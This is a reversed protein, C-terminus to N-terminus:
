YNELVKSVVAVSKHSQAAIQEDTLGPAGLGNAYNDVSCLAGYELNMEQALNAENALGMGVLDAFNSMVKIEAKTELRPGTTQWYTGGNEFRVKAKWAADALNQRVRRSFSPTLHRRQGSIITVQPSTFNIWDDPIVLTGPTLSPRLSGSSHLGVVESLGLVGFAALYAATNYEHPLRYDGNFGSCCVVAWKGAMKVAVSGYETTVEQDPANKITEDVQGADRVILGIKQNMM